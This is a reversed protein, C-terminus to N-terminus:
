GSQSRQMWHSVGPGFLMLTVSIAAYVLGLEYSGGKGVFPDRACNCTVVGCGADHVLDPPLSHLSCVWFGLWGGGFESLAALAQLLSPM